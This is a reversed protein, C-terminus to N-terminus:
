NNVQRSSSVPTEYEILEHNKKNTTEGRKIFYLPSPPSDLFGCFSM